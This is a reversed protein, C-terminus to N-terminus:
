CDDHNNVLTCAITSKQAPMMFPAYVQPAYLIYLICIYVYSIYTCYYSYRASVFNEDGSGSTLKGAFRYVTVRRGSGGSKVNYM